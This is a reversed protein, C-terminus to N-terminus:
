DSQKDRAPIYKTFPYIDVCLSELCINSETPEETSCLNSRFHFNQTTANPLKSTYVSHESTVAWCGFFDFWEDYEFETFNLVSPGLYM